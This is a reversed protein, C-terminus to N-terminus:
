IINSFHLNFTVNLYKLLIGIKYMVLIVLFLLEKTTYLPYNIWLEKLFITIGWLIHTKAKDKRDKM